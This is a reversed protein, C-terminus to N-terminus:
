NQRHHTTNKGATSQLIKFNSLYAYESSLNFKVKAMPVDVSSSAFLDAWKTWGWFRFSSLFRVSSATSSRVYRRELPQRVVTLKEPGLYTADLFKVWYRVARGKRHKTTPPQQALSATRTQSPDKTLPPTEACLVLSRVKVGGHHNHHISSVQTPSVYLHKTTEQNRHSSPLSDRTLFWAVFNDRTKV